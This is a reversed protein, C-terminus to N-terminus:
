PVKRGNGRGKAPECVLRYLAYITSKGPDKPAEVPTPDTVIGM